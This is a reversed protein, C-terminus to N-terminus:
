RVLIVLLIGSISTVSLAAQELTVSLVPHLVAYAGAIFVPFANFVSANFAAWEGNVIRQAIGVYVVGDMVITGHTLLLYVRLLIACALAIHLGWRAIIGESSINKHTMM